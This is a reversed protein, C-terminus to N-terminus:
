TCTSSVSKVFIYGSVCVRKNWGVMVCRLVGGGGEVTHEYGGNNM